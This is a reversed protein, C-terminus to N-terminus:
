EIDETETAIAQLAPQLSALMILTILIASTVCWICVAKIVFPELYTLYASFITGFFAMGFLALPAYSSLIGWKQRNAWWALLIALYGFGGLVGVPLIGFLRAYSSSQVANCDGVPGCFAQALTVEIYSLYAAVLLGAVSLVPIAWNTLWAPAPSLPVNTFMVLLLRAAAYLLALLMGVLVIVALTFGNDRMGAPAPAPQFDMPAPVPEERLEGPTPSDSDPAAALLPQLEPRDPLDVGGAALHAEISAELDLRIQDYGVLPQDGIVLFPVGIMHKEIGYSAGLTYLADIDELSYIQILQLNLQAGYKERIPPLTMSITQQCHKCGSMWFMVAHVIPPEATQARVPHTLNLALLCFVPLLFILKKLM